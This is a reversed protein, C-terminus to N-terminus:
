LTQKSQDDPKSDLIQALTTLFQTIYLCTYVQMRAYHCVPMSAYKCVQDYSKSDVIQDFNTLFETLYLCNCEEDTFHSQVCVCVCVSM